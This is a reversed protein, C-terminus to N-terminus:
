IKEYGWLFGGADKREGCAVKGIGSIKTDAFAEGVSNYMKKLSGDLNYQIVKKRNKIGIDYAHFINKSRTLTELNNPLNNIKIGDKHNVDLYQCDLSLFNIAMLRHIFYNTSVGNICLSLTLYGGSNIFQKLIKEKGSKKYELSKVRSYNSIKYKGDYGIIDKWIENPINDISLNKYYNM